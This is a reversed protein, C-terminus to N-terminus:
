RCLIVQNINNPFVKRTYLIVQYIRFSDFTHRCRFYSFFPHSHRFNSYLGFRESYCRSSHFLSIEDMSDLHRFTTRRTKTSRVTLTRINIATKHRITEFGFKLYQKKVKIKRTTFKFCILRNYMRILCRQM